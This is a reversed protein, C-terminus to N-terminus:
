QELDGLRALNKEVDRAQMSQPYEDHIRRYAKKAEEPQNNMEYAMATRLLYMPTLAIDDKNGAAKAYADIGKKVNGSEMYADGLAGAATYEAITGKGDFDELQKIANKFDGTKLYCIGAYYHCLNGVKTGSYKKMVKLFGSHQGDGNLAQSVSDMEFYRQAHFVAAAAKTEQTNSYYRYGFIAALAVIVVGLLINIRGKNKEYGAQLNDLVQGDDNKTTVPETGPKNRATNAM